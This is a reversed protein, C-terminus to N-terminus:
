SRPIGSRSDVVANLFVDDNAEPSHDDAHTLFVFVLSILVGVLTDWGRDWLVTAVPEPHVLQGMLLALPTISLLGLSYNRQVFLEAGAQFIIVGIVIPLGHPLVVIAGAAIILGLHTGVFRHVARLVQHSSDPSALPAAAAVMGWYAHGFGAATAIMGTALTAGGMRVIHRMTADSRLFDWTQRVTPLPPAPRPVRQRRGILCVLVAFAASLSAALAAEAVTRWTSHLTSACVAFGFLQFLPGPPGWKLLDALVSVVAAVISGLAVILWASDHHLSVATGLVVSVVLSAGAQLQMTARGRRSMNRGYIGTMAGFAVFPAWDLRDLAWVSLLPVAVSVAARIAAVHARNNPGIVFLQRLPAVFINTLARKM